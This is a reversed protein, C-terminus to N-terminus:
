MAVSYVSHLCDPELAPDKVGLSHPGLSSATPSHPAISLLASCYSGRGSVHGQQSQERWQDAARLPHAQLLKVSAEVEGM